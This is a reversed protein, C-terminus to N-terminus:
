IIVTREAILYNYDIPLMPNQPGKQSSQDDFQEFQFYIMNLSLLRTLGTGFYGLFLLQAPKRFSVAMGVLGIFDLALHLLYVTQFSVLQTM